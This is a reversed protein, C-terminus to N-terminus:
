ARMRQAFKTKLLSAQDDVGFDDVVDLRVVAVQGLEIRALELRQALGAVVRSLPGDVDAAVAGGYPHVTPGQVGAM